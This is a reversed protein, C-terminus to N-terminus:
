KWYEFPPKEGAPLVSEYKQGGRRKVFDAKASDILKPDLFLDVASLALTKAAVLMGKQGVSMGACAAAQWTHANVGPIFTAAVFGGTPYQWSLDGVDTSAVGVGNEAFPVIHAQSGLDPAGARNAVASKRIETAFKTEDATLDYGGVATLNRYLLRNLTDNPLTNWYSMELEMESKTETQLEAGKACKLIRAWIPLLTTMSPSRAILRSEAFAPVINPADGGKSIIYHIRTDSPVHERMFELSMSMLMLGDLASRGAEPAAAAHSAIGKFRFRASINALTSTNGGTNRDAPHWSLISDVDNFSGARAMFIKGGGGEEAPTGYYRITGSLKHNELYEKTVIAAFASATGLLNHGCGHGPGNALVAEREPVPAQSLGPLADFEGLIAIVPKGSGWTASFATPAGGINAEIKFGSAALEKQLAKSSQTEAFGLEAFNWIEKALQNYHPAHNDMSKLIAARDAVSVQATAALASVCLSVFLVKPPTPM